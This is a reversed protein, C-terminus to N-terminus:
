IWDPRLGCTCTERQMIGVLGLTGTSYFSTSSKGPTTISSDSRIRSAVSPAPNITRYPYRLYASETDHVQVSHYTENDPGLEFQFDELPAEEDIAGADLELQEERSVEM